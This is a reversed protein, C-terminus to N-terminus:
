RGSPAAAAAEGGAAPPAALAKDTEDKISFDLFNKEQEAKNLEDKKEALKVQGQPTAEKKLVEIERELKERKEKNAEIKHELEVIKPTRPREGVPGGEPTAVAVAPPAVREGRTDFVQSGAHASGEGPAAGARLGHGAACGLQDRAGAGCPDADGRRILALNGGAPAPNGQFPTLPVAPAPQPADDGRRILGLNGESSRPRDAVADRLDERGRLSAMLNGHREEAARRAQEQQAQQLRLREQRAQEAQARQQPTPGEFLSRLGAVAMGTAAAAGMTMAANNPTNFNGANLVSQAAQVGAQEASQPGSTAANGGGTLRAGECRGGRVDGGCKRCWAMWTRPAWGRQTSLSDDYRAAAVGGQETCPYQSADQAAAPVGGLLLLLPAWRFRRM